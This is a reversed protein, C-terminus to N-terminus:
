RKAKNTRLFFHPLFWGIIGCSALALGGWGRSKLLLGSYPSYALCLIAGGVTGLLPYMLHHAAVKRRNLLLFLVHLSGGLAGHAIGHM